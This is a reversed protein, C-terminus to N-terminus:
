LKNGIVVMKKYTHTKGMENFIEVWVIYIGIPSKQGIENTGDWKWVASEALLENTTLRKILRGQHDFISTNAIFGTTKPLFFVSAFDDIGDANPSFVTPTVHLTANSMGTLATQSNTYTPTGFHAQAAASHWNNGNLTPLNSNIRELAVGDDEQLLELHWHHSYCLKDIVLSDYAVIEICGFDDPMNPIAQEILLKPHRPFYYNSINASDKTFVVHENPFLILGNREMFYSELISDQDNYDREVFRLSSLDLIKNSRNLLEIYDEGGTLPNFLVENIVIDNSKISDTPYFTYNLQYEIGNCTFIQDIRIEYITNHSLATSFECVLDNNTWHHHIINASQQSTDSITIQLNNSAELDIEQNFAITLSTSALSTSKVELALTTATTNKGGPTGGIAAKSTHWYTSSSCSGLMDSRELSYGGKSKDNGALDPEKDHWDKSYSLSDVITHFSNFLYIKDSTNNWGPFGVVSNTNGFASYASDASTKCLLLYSLPPLTDSELSALDNVDAIQWDKTFLTDSTSNFLEIYEASPLGFSPSEDVYIENIRIEQWEFLNQFQLSLSTDLPNNSTDLLNSISLQYTSNRKFSSDLELTINQNNTSSINHISNNSLDFNSFDPEIPESFQLSLVRPSHLEYNILKAPFNDVYENADIIINDFYFKDSRTSTYTCLLGFYSSQLFTSELVEGMLTWNSALNSTDAFLRWYGNNSREVRITVAVESQNVFGDVGDIIKTLNNGSQKYLSIEDTTNGIIIAYGNLPGKLNAQNSSIYVTTKNSSSPNFDMKVKFQWFGNVSGTSPISIYSSSSNAPANLRLEQNQINFSDLDGQWPNPSTLTNTFDEIIQCRAQLSVLSIFVLIIFRM